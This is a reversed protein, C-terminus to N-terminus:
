GQELFLLLLGQCQLLLLLGVTSTRGASTSSTTATNTTITTTSTTTNTIPNTTTNHTNWGTGIMIRVLVGVGRIDRFCVSINIDSGRHRLLVRAVSMKVLHCSLALRGYGRIAFVGERYGQSVKDISNHCVCGRVWVREVRERM